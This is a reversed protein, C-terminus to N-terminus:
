HVMECADRMSSFTGDMMEVLVNYGTGCACYHIIQKNYNLDNNFADALANISNHVGVYGVIKELNMDELDQAFTCGDVFSLFGARLAAEIEEGAMILVGTKVISKIAEDIPTIEFFDTDFIVDAISFCADVIKVITTLDYVPHTGFYLESESLVDNIENYSVVEYWEGNLERAFYKPERNFLLTFIEDKYAIRDELTGNLEAAYSKVYCAVGYPDIAYLLKIEDDTYEKKTRDIPDYDDRGYNLLLNHNAREDLVPFINSKKINEDFIMDRNICLWVKGSKCFQVKNYNGDKQIIVTEKLVTVTCSAQFGGDETRATITTTGVKKARVGGIPNVTAVNTNSSTWTLEKNTANLPCFIPELYKLEDVAMTLNAPDIRVGTVPIDETVTVTIYDKKGSGDTAEAYVRTTGVGFGFIYGTTAGVTAISTDESHWCVCACKPYDTSITARAGHYWEDINITVSSPSVTVSKVYTM